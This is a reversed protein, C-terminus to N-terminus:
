RITPMGRVSHSDIVTSKQAHGQGPGALRPEGEHQGSEDRGDMGDLATLNFVFIGPVLGPM